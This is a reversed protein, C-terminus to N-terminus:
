RKFVNGLFELAPTDGARKAEAIEEYARAAGEFMAATPDAGLFRAIEEMEGVWRYAKPIMTPMQRTLWKHLEPQSALFEARLLEAVGDASAGRAVAIGIATLGKTLAAYSLKLASAAGIGGEVVLIELGFDRLALFQQAAEGSVYLRPVYGPKPPGGVIGVDVFAAGTPAVIDGVRRVTEPAVANCDAYLVRGAQRSLAPALRQALGLAEAPPLISLMVDCQGILTEDDAVIKMGAREARERSAASRGAVNTLVEAGGQALRWGIGTGMEGQAIVGIRM